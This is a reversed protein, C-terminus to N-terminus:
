LVTNGDLDELRFAGIGVVSTIRYLGEWNLGLKGWSLDTMNCVVKRLVLDGPMLPRSKVKKNYGQKLKHQYHTPKIMAMERKEEAWDLSACLQSDNNHKEFQDTRMTPFEMEVPIIAEVGYTMSFPPEWTSRRPTTRYSWLVHPLEDVWKGKAEDLRKKLGDLIM